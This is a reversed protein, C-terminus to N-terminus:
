PSAKRREALTRDHVGRGLRTRWLEAPAQSMTVNGMCYARVTDFLHSENFEPRFPGIFQRYRRAM